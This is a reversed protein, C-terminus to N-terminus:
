RPGYNILWDIFSDREYMIKRGIRKKFEPGLGRSDLNKLTHAHFLGGLYRSAEQRSFVPPLTKSLSDFIDCKNM